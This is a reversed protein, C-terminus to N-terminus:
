VGLRWPNSSSPECFYQRVDTDPFDDGIVGDKEFLLTDILLFHMTVDRNAAIDHYQFILHGQRQRIFSCTLLQLRCM